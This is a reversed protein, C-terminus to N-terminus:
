YNMKLKRAFELDSNNDIDIAEIPNNSSNIFFKTDKTRMYDSNSEKNNIWYNKNIYFVEM